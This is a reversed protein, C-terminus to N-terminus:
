DEDSMMLDELEAEEEATMGTPGGKSKKSGEIGQKAVDANDDFVHSYTSSQQTAALEEDEKTQEAVEEASLPVMLEELKWRRVSGDLGTSIVWSSPTSQIDKGEEDVIGTWLCLKEVEHWHGRQRRVLKWDASADGSAAFTRVDEDASGSIVVSSSLPIAEPNLHFALPLVSKVYDGHRILVAPSLPPLSGLAAGIKSTRGFVASNGPKTKQDAPSEKELPQFCQLTKDNSAVWVEARRVPRYHGDEYEEEEGTYAWGVVLDSISTEPGRLERQVALRARTSNTSTSSASAPLHLESQFVRGLSDATYILPLQTSDGSSSGVQGPTQRPLSAIATIGRTHESFTGLAKPIPAVDINDSSAVSRRKVAWQVLPLFDWIRVLRDSGGSLVVCSPHDLAHIAKIFDNSADVITAIPRLRSTSPAEPELSTIDHVQISKDWSASLLLKVLVGEESTYNLMTLAAVPAKHCQLTHTSKGSRLDVKRVTGGSEATWIAQGDVLADLVKQKGGDAGAGTLALDQEDNQRTGLYIPRGVKSSAAKRARRQGTLVDTSSQFLNSPHTANM